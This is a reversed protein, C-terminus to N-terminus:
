KKKNNKNLTHARRSRVAKFRSPYLQLVTDQCRLTRHSSSTTKIITTKIIKPLIAFGGDFAVVALTDQPMKGVTMSNGLKGSGSRAVAAILLIKSKWPPWAM